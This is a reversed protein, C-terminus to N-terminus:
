IKYNIHYEKLVSNYSNNLRKYNFKAMIQDSMDLLNKSIDSCPLIILYREKNTDTSILFRISNLHSNSHLLENSLSTFLRFLQHELPPEHQRMYNNIENNIENQINFSHPTFM